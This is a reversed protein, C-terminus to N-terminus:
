YPIGDEDFDDQMMEAAKARLAPLFRDRYERIWAMEEAPIHKEASTSAAVSAYDIGGKNTAKALEFTTVVEYPSIGTSALGLIYKRFPRQSSPPLALLTPMLEADRLLFVQRVSRCAQGRGGNGKTGWQSMPCSTCKGSPNEDSAIGYRGNGHEADESSCDPPAGGGGNGLEKEWWARTDRYDLIVGDFSKLPIDGEPTPIAWFMSGGTPLKIRTLDAASLGGSTRQEVELVEVLARIRDQNRAVYLEVPNPTTTTPFNAQATM